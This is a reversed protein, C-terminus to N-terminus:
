VQLSRLVAYDVFLVIHIILFGSFCNQYRQLLGPQGDDTLWTPVIGKNCECCAEIQDTLCREESLVYTKPHSTVSLSASRNM